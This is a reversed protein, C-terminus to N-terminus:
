YEDSTRPIADLRDAIALELDAVGQHPLLTLFARGAALPITTVHEVNRLPAPDVVILARRGPLGVLSPV